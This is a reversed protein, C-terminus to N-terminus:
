RSSEHRRFNSAEIVHNGFNLWEHTLPYSRHRHTDFGAQTFADDLERRSYGACHWIWRTPYFCKRTIIVVLRGRPALRQGLAALAAPLARPRLHELMSACVILDYRNWADPLQDDLQRIDAQCLKVGGLGRRDLAARSADLMAPTLDFADIQTCSAGHARAADAVALISLGTGCGADLVRGPDPLPVSELLAQLGQRHGFAQVYRVYSRTRRAYLGAVENAEFRSGTM